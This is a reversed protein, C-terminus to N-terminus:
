IQTYSKLTDFGKHLFGHTSPTRAKSILLGDGAIAPCREGYKFRSPKDEGKYIVAVDNTWLRENCSYINLHGVRVCLRQLDLQTTADNEVRVPCIARHPKPGLADLTRRASTQRSYCLEGSVPDGFWSHSLIVSPEESLTVKARDGVAVRVWVPITVYFLAKNGQPIRLPSEPRVILSRDPMVPINQVVNAEDGSSWRNWQLEEPEAVSSHTVLSDQEEPQRESALQWENETRRLWLKLPGIQWHWCHAPEIEFPEWINM